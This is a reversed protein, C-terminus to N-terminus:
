QLTFATFFVMLNDTGLQQVLRTRIMEKLENKGKASVLATYSYTSVVSIVIDRVVPEQSKLKAFLPPQNGGGVKEVSVAHGSAQEAGGETQTGLSVTTRLYHSTEPDALNVLFEMPEYFIM